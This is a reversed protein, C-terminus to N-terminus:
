VPGLDCLWSSVDSLFRASDEHHLWHGSGPYIIVRDGPKVAFAHGGAARAENRYFALLPIRRSDEHFRDTEPRFHFSGPGFAFDHFVATIAEPLSNVVRGAHAQTVAAPTREGDLARFYGLAVASPDGAALEHSVQAIRVRDESAFGYAPDVVIAASVRQPELAAAMLAVESGASHGVMVAHNVHLHRLLQVVDGSLTTLAYGQSSADSGGHGRLDVSVVRGHDQLPGVLDAWDRSDCPWGHILM